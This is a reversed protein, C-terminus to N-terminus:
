RSKFAFLSPLKSTASVLPMEALFISATSAVSARTLPGSCPPASLATATFGVSTFRTIAPVLPGFAPFWALTGAFIAMLMMGIWFVPLADLALVSAVLSRDTASGRRWASVAGLASGVTVGICLAPIMLLLTWGIRNMLVATVPRGYRISVGWDGSVVGRVYRGYQESLTLDLGLEHKVQDRQATTLTGAEAGIVFELPDGPAIRPLAFNLTVAVFLTIAYQMITRLTLGWTRPQKM